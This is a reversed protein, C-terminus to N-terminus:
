FNEICKHAKTDKIHINYQTSDLSMRIVKVSISQFLKFYKTVTLILITTFLKFDLNLFDIWESKFM